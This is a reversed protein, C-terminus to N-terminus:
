ASERERERKFGGGALVRGVTRRGVSERCDAPMLRWGEAPGCDVLRGAWVRGRARLPSAKAPSRERAGAPLRRPGRPGDQGASLSSFGQGAFGQLRPRRLTPLPNTPPNDRALTALSTYPQAPLPKHLGHFGTFVELIILISFTQPKFGKGAFGSSDRRLGEFSILNPKKPTLPKLTQPHTSSPYTDAPMSNSRTGSSPILFLARKM